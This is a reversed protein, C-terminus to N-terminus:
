NSIVDNLYRRLYATDSSALYASVSDVLIYGDVIATSGGSLAFSDLFTFSDSLLQTLALSTATPTGGVTDSFTFSDSVAFSWGAALGEGFTLSDTFGTAAVLRTTVSDALSFSDKVVLYPNTYSFAIGDTLSLSDAILFKIGLSPSDSLSLTDAFFLPLGAVGTVSDLLSFSDQDLVGLGGTAGTSYAIGDIFCLSDQLQETAM